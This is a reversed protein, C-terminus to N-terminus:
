IDAIPTDPSLLSPKISAPEAPKIEDKEKKVSNEINESPLLNKKAQSPEPTFAPATKEPKAKPTVSNNEPPQPQEENTDVHKKKRHLMLGVKLETEDFEEEDNDDYIVKWLKEDPDFSTITGFFLDKDFWKAIRMGMYEQPSKQEPQPKPKIKQKKKPPSTTFDSSRKKVNGNAQKEKKEVSANTIIMKKLEPLTVDERDDDEYRILYYSPGNKPNKIGVVVGRYLKSSNEGPPQFYKAVRVGLYEKLENKRDSKTDAPKKSSLTKSKKVTLPVNNMIASAIGYHILHKQHRVSCKMESISASIDQALEIIPNEKSQNILQALIDGDGGTIHVMRHYNTVQAEISKDEGNKSPVGKGVLKIWNTINDQLGLAMGSLVSSIMGDETNSAYAPIPKQSAIAVKVRKEVQSPQILPLADTYEKLSRFRAFLGPGIGGGLLNGKADTATYTCATGGDIVLAPHGEMRGAGCVAALRDLGMGEYRNQKKTFFDDGKMQFIRTPVCAWLEHLLHTQNQVSSVIYISLAPRGDEGEMKRQAAKLSPAVDKGFLYEHVATPLHRSLVDLPDIGPFDLDEGKIHPTRWFLSPSADEQIGKHFSWHLHSNGCIVSLLRQENSKPLSDPWNTTKISCTKEKM